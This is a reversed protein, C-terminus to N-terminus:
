VVVEVEVSAGMSGGTPGWHGGGDPGQAQPGSVESGAVVQVRQPALGQSRSWEVGPHPPRQGLQRKVTM